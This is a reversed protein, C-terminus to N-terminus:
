SSLCYRIYNVKGSSQIPALQYKELSPRQPGGIDPCRIEVADSHLSLGCLIATMTM